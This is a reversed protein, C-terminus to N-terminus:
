NIRTYNYGFEMTAKMNGCFPRAQTTSVPFNSLYLASGTGTSAIYGLSSRAYSGDGRSGMMAGISSLRVTLKVCASPPVEYLRVAFDTGKNMILTNGNFPHNVVNGQVWDKPFTDAKILSPTIPVGINLADSVSVLNQINRVIELVGEVTKNVKHSEYMNAAATWIAGIVLGVVGLVIAAEILSFGRKARRAIAEM